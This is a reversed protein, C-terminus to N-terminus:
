EEPIEPWGNRRIAAALRSDNRAEALPIQAIVSGDHEVIEYNDEWVRGERRQTM